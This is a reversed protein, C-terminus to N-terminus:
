CCWPRCLPPSSRVKVEPRWSQPTLRRSAVSGGMIGQLVEWSCRGPARGRLMEVGEEGAALLHAPAPCSSAPSARPLPATEPVALNELASEGDPFPGRDGSRPLRGALLVSTGPPPPPGVGRAPGEASGTLKLRGGGMVSPLGPSQSPSVTVLTLSNPLGSALREQELGWAGKRM